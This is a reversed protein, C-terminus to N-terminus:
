VLKAPPSCHHGCFGIIHNHNTGSRATINGGNPSSLQTQLNDANLALMQTADAKVPATDRGFGHQARGFHKVQHVPGLFKAQACLVDAIIQIGDDFAAATHGLLERAPDAMQELFVLDVDHHALGLDGAFPFDRDFSLFASFLKGGFVDHQGGACPRSIQWPEFRIALPDPGVLVRQHRWMHRLLQQHYARACNANFKRAEEVSQARIRCNYLHHVAHQRNLIGFDASKRFLLEFLLTHRDLLFGDDLLKITCLVFHGSM